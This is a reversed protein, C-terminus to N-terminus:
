PIKARSYLPKSLVATQWLGCPRMKGPMTVNAADSNRPARKVYYAKRSGFRLSGRMNSPTYFSPHLFFLISVAPEAHRFSDLIILAYSKLAAFAALSQLGHWFWLIEGRPDFAGLSFSSFWVLV